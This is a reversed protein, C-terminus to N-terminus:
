TDPQQEMKTCKTPRPHVASHSSNESDQNDATAERKKSSTAIAVNAMLESAGKAVRAKKEKLAGSQCAAVKKWNGNARSEPWTFSAIEGLGNRAYLVVTHEKLQELGLHQGSKERLVMHYEYLSVKM